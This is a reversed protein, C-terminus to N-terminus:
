PELEESYIWELAVVRAAPKDLKTEGKNHKILITGAAHTDKPAASDANDSNKSGCAASILLISLLVLSVLLRKKM